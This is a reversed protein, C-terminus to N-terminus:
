EGRSSVRWDAIRVLAELWALRFPGVDRLLEQTRTSWSAGRKGDGLRMIDLCLETEPVTIGNGLETKSMVDGDWVGRAFLKGNGPSTEDPLACLRMRIKGHHAMILYAVLNAKEDWHNYELYALSSALEHRFGSGKGKNNAYPVKKALPPDDKVLGLVGVKFKEHAKGLDHWHAARTVAATDSDDFGLKRALCEAEDRVSVCHEALPVDKTGDAGDCEPKGDLLPVPEVAKRKEKSFGLEPDYSCFKEADVLLTMGPFLSAAGVLEWRKNVVDFYWASDKHKKLIDKVFGLPAPCIEEPQYNGVAEKPLYRGQETEVNRWFIRIDTNDSDRVYISVDTDFGSLDAETDFLDLLDRKRLMHRNIPAPLPISVLNRSSGDSLGADLKKEAECIEEETYPKEDPPKVWYIEALDAGAKDCEGYRNCRGFRQVLSSWPAIETIMTSCTVDVGAELAQTSIIIRGAPPPRRKDHLRTMQKAREAKRYRSHVLLVESACNKSKGIAQYVGQARSVRNLFVITDTAPKAKEIIKEALGAIYEKEKIGDTDYDLRGLRKKNNVWLHKAENCDDAGLDHDRKEDKPEYDYTKLWAPDLTASMWLSHCPRGTGFKSRLGELQASTVLTAGTLQVEDFVWLADNHLLAFRVPWSPRSVGYGRMLAASVLMDQTGVLITPREPNLIWDPVRKTKREGMLVDLHVELNLKKRAAEIWDKAVAETDEVLTRM